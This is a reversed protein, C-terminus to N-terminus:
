FFLNRYDCAYAAAAVVVVATAAAPSSVLLSHGLIKGNIFENMIVSERLDFDDHFYLQCLRILDM